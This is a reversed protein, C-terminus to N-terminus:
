VITETIIQLDFRENKEEFYLDLAEQLNSKSEHNGNLTSVDSFVELYVQFAM